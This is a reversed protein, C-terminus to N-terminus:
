NEHVLLSRFAASFKEEGANEYSLVKRGCRTGAIVVSRSGRHHLVFPRDQENALSFARAALGPDSFEMGRQGSKCVVTYVTVTASNAM